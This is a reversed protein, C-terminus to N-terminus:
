FTAASMDAADQKLRAAAAAQEARLRALNTNQFALTFQWGSLLGTLAFSLITNTRNFRFLRSGVIAGVLGASAGAFVGDRRAQRYCEAVAAEDVSSAM